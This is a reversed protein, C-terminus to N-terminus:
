FPHAGHVGISFQLALLAELGTKGGPLRDWSGQLRLRMFESPHFAALLTVRNEPGFLDPAESPASEWRGGFAWERSTRLVVQAYGGLKTETPIAEGTTADTLGALRRGYLEAQLALYARSGPRRIKLYLDAGYLDRWAAPGPEDLRSASVGLGLTAGEALDVFQAVRGTWTRRGPEGEIPTTEQYAAHLEVFWPLPTLWAVAAGPGGLAEPSVLRGAALPADAFDWVHPHQQNLRGWPAYLKGARLQLGAPLGLTTIFAEEVEAGEPTLAVFVDARAHPDVVAQFALELEEFLPTVKGAPGFPGSRPSLTEVDERNWVLAASGIASIDPLMRQPAGRGTGAEQAQAVSGVGAAVVAALWMWKM